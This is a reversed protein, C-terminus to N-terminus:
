QRVGYAVFNTPINQPNKIAYLHKFKVGPFNDKMITEFMNRTFRHVHFDPQTAWLESNPTSIIFMDGKRLHKKVSEIYDRIYHVHEIMEFSVLVDYTSYGGELFDSVRVDVGMNEEALRATYPNIDVGLADFGADQLMKTGYGIGCGVDLVSAGEGKIEKILPIAQKYLEHTIKSWLDHVEYQELSINEYETDMWIDFGKDQAMCCFSLQEDWNDARLSFNVGADKVKRSLLMCTGVRLKQNPTLKYLGPKKLQKIMKDSTTWGTKVPFLSSLGDTIHPMPESWQANWTAWSNECVIDKKCAVLRSIVKPHLKLDSDLMLLYDENSWLDLCHNRLAAIREFGKATWHHDKLEDGEAKFNEYVMTVDWFGHNHQQFANLIEETDDTCDNLIFLLSIKNRPYDQALISDLVKQLCWGRNRIPVTILITPKM